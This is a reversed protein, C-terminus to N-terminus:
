WYTSSVTIYAKQSVETEGFIFAAPRCSVYQLVSIEIVRLTAHSQDNFRVCLIENKEHSLCGELNNSSLDLVILESLDGINSEITGLDLWFFEIV